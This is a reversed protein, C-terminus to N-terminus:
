LNGFEAFEAARARVMKRLLETNNLFRAYKGSGVSITIATSPCFKWPIIFADGLDFRWLLAVDSQIHRGMCYHWCGKGGYTSFNSSKVEVRLCGDVILDYPCKVGTKQEVEFGHSQLWKTAQAEGM